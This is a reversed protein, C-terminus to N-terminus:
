ANLNRHDGSTSRRGSAAARVSEAPALAPDQQALDIQDQAKSPQRLSWDPSAIDAGERDECHDGREGRRRLIDRDVGPPDVHGVLLRRDLQEGRDVLEAVPDREITPPASASTSAARILQSAPRDASPRAPRSRPRQDCRRAGSVCRGRHPRHQVLRKDRAQLPRVRADASIRGAMTPM